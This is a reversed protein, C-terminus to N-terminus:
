MSWEKISDTNMKIYDDNGAKKALDLSLKAATIAEAKRGLGALILSERRVQWFRPSDTKTAKQVYMLAKNLDGGSEFLFSGANYYDGTSPGAMVKDISAMVQKKAHVGISVPVVTNAWAINLTAGEMHIDDVSITFSEVNNANSKSMVEVAVAPTKERYSGWNGTEYEYFHVAWKSSGPLTLVGYAGKKLEKGEITVDDSFSVKTIQNAGTRWIKGFPVLGNDAFITRGKAAPRSYVVEVDTLGVTQSITASPSPAPTRIQGIAMAAISAAFVITLTLNRLM